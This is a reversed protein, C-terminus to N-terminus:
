FRNVIRNKKDPISGKLEFEYLYLGYTGSRENESFILIKFVSGKISRCITRYLYREDDESEFLVRGEYFLWPTAKRISLDYPFSFKAFFRDEFDRGDISHRLDDEEFAYSRAYVGFNHFTGYPQQVLDDFFLDGDGRMYITHVWVKKIKIGEIFPQYFARFEPGEKKKYKKYNEYFRAIFTKKDVESVARLLQINEPTEKLNILDEPHEVLNLLFAPDFSIIKLLFM